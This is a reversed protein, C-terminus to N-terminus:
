STMAQQIAFRIEDTRFPKVIAAKFGYQQYHAIIPDSSYGSAVILRAEPHDKLIKEATEKGGLGGKVTLDMIALDITQQTNRSTQFFELTEEGKSTLLVEHGLFSLQENLIKRITEEDDMIVIRLKEKNSVNQRIPPKKPLTPRKQAPLYIIISSGNQSQPDFMIHGDHKTIVSHCITLGLGSGGEKTSFYPDFVKDQIEKPIGPGTDSIQIRVCDKPLVDYLIGMQEKKVNSCSITIQGGDSIAQKSNIIINQIVQSIQGSDADVLWLDDAFHFNTTINSGYLIFDTSEKILYPLSTSEKVPAGGKSFTLLQQTLKAARRTAQEAGKLLNETKKQGKTFLKAMEINGLIVSLINNFDHAIGGALLGLSELKSVKLSENELFELDSVDRIVLVCGILEKENFLPSCSQFIKFQKKDKTILTAHNSLSNTQPSNLIIEPLPRENTDKGVTNAVKSIHQGLAQHEQWGTIKCAQESIFAIKGEIDTSIVGEGISAITISLLNREKALDEEVRKLPTIDRGIGILGLIEGDPGRYPTKLVDMLKQEGNPYTIWEENRRTEGSEFVARDRKQYSEGEIKPFLQLDDKGIIFEESKGTFQEFKENCGLYVGNNDKFFLIDPISRIMSSLLAKERALANEAEKRRTIDFSVGTIKLQQNINKGNTLNCITYFYRVKQDATVIRFEHASSEGTDTVQKLINLTGRLDEPHIIKIADKLTPHRRVPQELIDALENSLWFRKSEPYFEWCGIKGIQQAARLRQESQLLAKRAIDRQYILWSLVFVAVILTAIIGGLTMIITINKQFISTPKNILIADTPLNQESINFRSLQTHDFKYQIPSEELIDIEEISTGSLVEIAMDAIIRGHFRGDIVAGGLLGNEVETSYGTYTPLGSEWFVRNKEPAQPTKGSPMECHTLPFVLTENKSFQALTNALEGENLGHLGIIPITINASKATEIFENLVLKGTLSADAVAIIHKTQPHLKLALDINKIHDIKGAIGSIGEQGRLMSKNFGNIGYFLIPVDPFLTQRHRIAFNLANNGATILLDPCNNYYKYHYLNYLMENLYHDSSHRKSDMNEIFIEVNPKQQKLHGYFERIINDQFQKGHHYSNLLLVKQQAFASSFPTFLLAATILVLSISKFYTLHDKTFFLKM